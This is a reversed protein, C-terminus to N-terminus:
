SISFPLKRYISDASSVTICNLTQGDCLIDFQRNVNMMLLRMDKCCGHENREYVIIPIELQEIHRVVQQKVHYTKM